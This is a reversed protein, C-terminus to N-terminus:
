SGAQDRSTARGGTGGAPPPSKRGVGILLAAVEAATSDWSHPEYAAVLARRAAHYAPDDLHRAIVSALDAPDAADVYEAHIGGAEPLAGGASAIVPSGHQLAEIVPLGFGETLSPVVTLFAREYLGRLTADDVSAPWHLRRGAAPHSRIRAALDDVRWGQRGAIVLHVDPHDALVRDFADLLMSHNKRPEVTGVCLLLPADGVAALLEVAAADTPRDSDGPSPRGGDGGFQVVRVDPAPRGSRRAYDALEGATHRSNALFIESHDLHADLHRRFVEVLNPDFWDPNTCPLVDHVLHVSRVGGDALRRLLTSREADVLNWTADVDFFVAGPEFRTLTLQRHEPSRRRQARRARIASKATSVPPVRTLPGVLRRLANPRPPAPPHNRMPPPALLSATEAADLRRYATAVPDWVIPVLDLDDDAALLRVVLEAVVRQIGARWGSRLTETVDVYCVVPGGPRPAPPRPRPEPLLRPRVDDTPAVALPGSSNRHRLVGGMAGALGTDVRLWAGTIAWDPRNARRLPGIVNHRAYPWSLHWANRAAATMERVTGNRAVTLLWNRYNLFFFGPWTSGGTAGHVHHIVSEPATVTRWGRRRGRWSLDTDEYYAFFDPDFWGVDRLMDARLLVGGGCWGPVEESELERDPEGARLEVGECWATLATGLNNIRRHRPGALPVVADVRGGGADGAEVGIPGSVVRVPRDTAVEVRVESSTADVPVHIEARQAIEFAQRLPVHKDATLTVGDGPLSRGLIDVGRDEIATVVARQGDGGDGRRGVEVEVTVFDTAFLLKPAVAGVTADSLHAVLPALWGPDVVADNNVLAVADVADLDRMARNCGEAFGLNAGNEIIRLDPFWRRLLPVSGDISGNDVIVIEIRDAPYETAVLSDVCRRTLGPANWNLVVVRVFPPPTPAADSSTM